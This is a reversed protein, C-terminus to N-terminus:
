VGVGEMTLRKTIGTWSDTLQKELDNQGVELITLGSIMARTFADAYPIEAFLDIGKLELYGRIADTVEPNIDAKNIICGAPLNFQNVLEYVRKLDHLGSLTPETVMVVYDAGTISSIVPCGVGPAGDVLLTERHESQALKKAHARVTSVLKGSNEAGVRLNAHVMGGGFRTRSIYWEGTQEPIMTIADEPCIHACYACGECNWPDLTVQGELIPLADFRCIDTCLGCNTCQATDIQPLETSFFPTTEHVRPNLLLHLNAADVDCDAVVVNEGALRAFAAAISTKGTGGKGSIIVIEKM